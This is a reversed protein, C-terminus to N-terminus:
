RFRLDIDTATFTGSNIRVGHVVPNLPDTMDVRCEAALSPSALVVNDTDTTNLLEVSISFNNVGPATPGPPNMALSGLGKANTVEDALLTLSGTLMVM